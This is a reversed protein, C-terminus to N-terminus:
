RRALMMRLVDGTNEAHNALEGIVEIIHMWLMISVPDIENELALLTRSVERQKKDAEWEQDNVEAIKRMVRDVEPGGFSSELLSTLESAVEVLLESARVSRDVLELLLPKLSDPCSMRRLTLIVALDEAADAIADQEKLYRLMDGRDVPLFISKPLHDRIENKQLDAKHELKSIERYLEECRDWDGALFAEILPRVLEVTAHVRHTHEVMPGFPSKGFLEYITRM